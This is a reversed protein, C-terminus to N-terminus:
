EFVKDIIFHLISHLGICTIVTGLLSIELNGTILYFVLWESTLSLVRYSLIRKIRNERHLYQEEKIYVRIKNLIRRAIDEQKPFFIVYHNLEDKIIQYVENENM